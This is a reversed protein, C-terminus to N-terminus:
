AAVETSREREIEDVPMAASGTFPRQATLGGDLVLSQGTHYSSHDSFLWAVADAVEEPSGIRRVPHIDAMQDLVVDSGFVNRLM